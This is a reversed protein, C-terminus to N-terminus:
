KQSLDYGYLVFDGRAPDDPFINKFNNTIEYVAKASPTTATTFGFNRATNFSHVDLPIQLYEASIKKWIGIDVPSNKRIMWRLFMHLRKCASSKSGIKQCNSFYNYLIKVYVNQNDPKFKSTNNIVMEEMTPYTTYLKNLTFCINYLDKKNEWRYLTDNCDKHKKWDDGLIYKYPGGATQFSDNIKDCVRIFLKRNGFSLWATIFGSIEIDQVSNYKHPFQIPDDKIFDKTEFKDALEIIQEKNMCKAQNKIEEKMDMKQKLCILNHFHEISIYTITYKYIQTNTNIVAM